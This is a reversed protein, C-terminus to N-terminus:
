KGMRMCCAANCMSGFGGGGRVGGFGEGGWGAVDGEAGRGEHGDEDGVAGVVAQLGPRAGVRQLLQLLLVGEKLGVPGIGGQPLVLRPRQPRQSLV